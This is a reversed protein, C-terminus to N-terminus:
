SLSFSGLGVGRCCEQSLALAVQIGASAGFGGELSHLAGAVAWGASGPAALAPAAEAQHEM